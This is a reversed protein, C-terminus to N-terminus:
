TLAGHEMQPDIERETEYQGFFRERCEEILKDWVADGEPTLAEAQRIEPWGLLIHPLLVFM